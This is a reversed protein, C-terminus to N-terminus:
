AAASAAEEEEEDRRPDPDMLAECSKWTIPSPCSPLGRADRRQPPVDGTQILWTTLEAMLGAQLSSHSPKNWLNNLERPDKVLDYLESDGLPRHVLKATANRVMVWKPSGQQMEQQARPWYLNHPNDNPLHDSGNPFLESHYAFGGEAYVYRHPDLQPKTGNLAPLLSHAFRVYDSTVNALDLMTELIDALQVPSDVVHGKSGGKPLTMILPVRTLVDDAAGPWKEVLGYDGGFDGHDSSAIVSTRQKLDANQDLADLIVGLTWDTYKISELYSKHIKYFVDQPLTTLNRYHRIGRHYYPKGPTDIPRLEVAKKVEELDLSDHFGKPAGYPPHAGKTAVFLVFPEPPDSQLFEVAKMAAKTDGNHQSDNYWHSGGENRFSYFGAQGFRYANKGHDRGYCDHDAEWEGVSANFTEPSFVDNKGIYAIHYGDEKLLRFYNEEYAQLLHQQTRHGLVHMYRGTLMTCRSPSCQTHMAHAQAFRTGEAALRDLNPTVNLPKLAANYLGGCSEARLTDPFFFVFNPRRHQKRTSCSAIFPLTLLLLAIFRLMTTIM